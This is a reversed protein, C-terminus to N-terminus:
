DVFCDIDGDNTAWKVDELIISLVREDPYIPIATADGVTRSYIYRLDLKYKYIIHCWVDFLCNKFAISLLEDIDDPVLKSYKLIPYSKLSKSIGDMNREFAGGKMKRITGDYRTLTYENTKENRKLDCLYPRNKFIDRRIYNAAEWSTGPPIKEAFIVYKSTLEVSLSGKTREYCEDVIQSVWIPRKLNGLCEERISGIGNDIDYCKDILQELMTKYFLKVVNEQKSIFNTVNSWTINFEESTDILGLGIIFTVLTLILLNDWDMLIDTYEEGRIMRIMNVIHKEEDTSKFLKLNIIHTVLKHRGSILLTSIQYFNYTIVFGREIFLDLMKVSGIYNFIANDFTVIIHYYSDFLKKMCTYSNGKLAGILNHRIRENLSPPHDFALVANGFGCSELIISIDDSRDRYKTVYFDCVDTIKTNGSRYAYSLMDINDPDFYEISLYIGIYRSTKIPELKKFKDLRSTIFEHINYSFPSPKDYADILTNLIFLVCMKPKLTYCKKAMLKSEFVYKELFSINNMQVLDKIFRYRRLEIVERVSRKFALSLKPLESAPVFQGISLVVNKSYFGSDVM